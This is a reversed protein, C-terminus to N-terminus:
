TLPDTIVLQQGRLMFNGSHLDWYGDSDRKAARLLRVAERLEANMQLKLGMQKFADNSDDGRILDALLYIHDAVAGRVPALREMAVVFYQSGYTGKLFRVGYIVPFYPNRKTVKSLKNIYSLYGGNEHVDGVKYVVPSRDSGYVRGFCGSGICNPGGQARVMQDAVAHASQDVTYHEISFM